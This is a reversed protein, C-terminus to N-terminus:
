LFNDENGEKPFKSDEVLSQLVQRKNNINFNDRSKDHRFYQKLGVQAQLEFELEMYHIFRM